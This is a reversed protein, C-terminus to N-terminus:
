SVTITLSCILSRTLRCTYIFIINFCTNYVYATPTHSLISSLPASNHVRCRLRPNRSPISIKISALCSNSESSHVLKVSNSPEKNWIDSINQLSHLQFLQTYNDSQPTVLQPKIGLPPRGKEAVGLGDRLWGLRWDLPHRTMFSVAWNWRVSILDLIRPHKGRSAGVDQPTTIHSYIVRLNPGLSSRSTSIVTQHTRVVKRGQLNPCCIWGYRRYIDLLSCVTIKMTVPATHM